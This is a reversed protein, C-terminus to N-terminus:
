VKGVKETPSTPLYPAGPLLSIPCPFKASRENLATKGEFSLNGYVILTTASINSLLPEEDIAVIQADVIDKNDAPTGRLELTAPIAIPSAM